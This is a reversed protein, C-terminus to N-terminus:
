EGPRLTETVGAAYHLRNQVLVFGARQLMDRAVPVGTRPAEVGSAFWFPLAPSIHSVSRVAHGGWAANIIQDRDIAASLAARFAPNDFPARRNNFALFEIGIDTEQTVRVQAAQRGLQELVDPDGQYEALLNLEGSRMMGIVAEANPIVRLVIRDLKPAAWHNPNRELVIEENLRARVMRFPGSGVQNQDRVNELTDARGQLGALVPGWQAQPVIFVRGLTTTVFASNVRRLHFRLGREGVREMREVDAMFPRFMPAKENAAAEFSFVIDEMTVPRGDHFTMGARVVVDVTREDVFRFSEAAWPQPLGDPGIRVLRDWILENMWSDPAGAIWLPHIGQLATGSNIIMTRQQGRPTAQIFTWFNRIGVGRQTVITAPDWVQQNFAQLTNPHVLFAYPADRTVISQAERVLRQRAAPDVSQRQQEAVRDYEPSTFGVFNFGRPATSSHFLNFLLEDPDSREPRGVMRWMTTDWREREFWVVQSHQQRALPRVEVELGLQRWTQAILQAAQFAQPQAGQTDSLLVIRRVRDGAAQANSEPIMAATTLATAAALLLAHRRTLKPM